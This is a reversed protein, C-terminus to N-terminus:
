DAYWGSASGTSSFFFRYKTSDKVDTAIVKWAGLKAYKYSSQCYDKGSSPYFCVKVYRNGSTMYLNIDNCNSSTTLVYGPALHGGSGKSFSGAGDYCAGQVGATAGESATAAAATTGTLAGSVLVLGAVTALLRKM